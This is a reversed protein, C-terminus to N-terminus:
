DAYARYLFTVVHGRTCADDPGFTTATRGKTIDNELAWLIATTYYKGNPVDTFPNSTSVPKPEGKARWLFTVVQGRTCEDDPRFTGDSYGTTIGNESAWLVAKYYYKNTDKVDKFNSTLNTPEPCGNARWLFTVVHARTCIRDPMFTTDTVGTTIQPDQSIAWLVPDYYFKGEAVDTFPNVLKPIAETRTAGCRTCTFTMAGEASSTPELTVVGEDWEHGSACPDAEIWHAYITTDSSFATNETVKTGGSAATYWGDFIHNDFTPVVYERLCGNGDTLVTTSECSGGNADLTISYAVDFLLEVNESGNGTKDYARVYFAYSGAEADEFLYSRSGNVSRNFINHGDKNIIVYYYYVNAVPEWTVTVDSGPLYVKKETQPNPRGVYEVEFACKVNGSGHGQRDYAQVFFEYSGSEASDFTYSLDGGVSRNFINQGDKNIIVYYYFANAVADWSVTVKSGPTYVTKDTKPHPIGVYGVDFFCGVNGSGNGNRDYSQVFFEYSGAEANSITYSLDGGVSRNFINKGDKNIIVYYYFANKVTNWRVTVNSGPAYLTSDTTPNPKDDEASFVYTIKESPWGSPLVYANNITINSNTPMTNLHSGNRNNPNTYIQFHLHYGTSWGTKGIYGIIEGQKVTGSTKCGPKLHM